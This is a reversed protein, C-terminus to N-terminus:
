TNNDTFSMTYIIGLTSAHVSNMLENRRRLNYEGPPGYYMLNRVVRSGAHIPHKSFQWSWPSYIYPREYFEIEQLPPQKEAEEETMARLMWPLMKLTKRVYLLDAVANPTSWTQGYRPVVYTRYLIFNFVEIGTVDLADDDTITPDDTSSLNPYGSYENNRVRLAIADSRRKSMYQSMMIDAMKRLIFTPRELNDQQWQIITGFDIFDDYLKNKLDIFHMLREDDEADQMRVVLPLRYHLAPREPDFPDYEFCLRKFDEMIKKYSCWTRLRALNPTPGTIDASSLKMKSVVLAAAQELQSLSKAVSM